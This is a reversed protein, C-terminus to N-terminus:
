MLEVAVRDAVLMGKRTLKWQFGSIKLLDEKVLAQAANYVAEKLPAFRREIEAVDVGERMRLGFIVADVAMEAPTLVSENVLSRQGSAVGAEWSKLDAVNAYRLFKASASQMDQPAPPHAGGAASRSAPTLGRQRAAGCEEKGYFEKEEKRQSAASPGYGVWEAMRWTNLNHRCERGRRAFNSVEYQHFGRAELFAWTAEYFRAEEDPTPKRKLGQLMKLFLKTDGEFTLCYTSIHAPSAAVARELDAMWAGLGEEAAAFILDMNWNEISAAKLMAIAAEIQPLSHPRGIAELTAPNFSQVGLSFRNVGIRKLMELKDPKVTSPALEISWEVEGVKAGSAEVAERIGGCLAELDPTSLLSPTGGGMFVTTVKGQPPWKKLELKIASLYKDIAESAPKEQYFACYDCKKACFPVHVYLGLPEKGESEAWNQGMERDQRFDRFL